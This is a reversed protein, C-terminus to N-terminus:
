VRIGEARCDKKSRMCLNAASGGVSGVSVPLLVRLVCFLGQSERDVPIGLAEGTKALSSQFFFSVDKSTDKQHALRSDFGCARALM